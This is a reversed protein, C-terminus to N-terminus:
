IGVPAVSISARDVFKPIYLPVQLQPTGHLCRRPQFSSPTLPIRRRSGSASESQVHHPERQPTIPSNPQPTIALTASHRLTPYTPRAAEHVAEDVVEHDAVTSLSDCVACCAERKVGVGISQLWNFLLYRRRACRVCRDWGGLSATERM